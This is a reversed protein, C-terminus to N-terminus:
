FDMSATVVLTRPQALVLYNAGPYGGASAWYNRDFLNDIRARLTLEQEGISLGYRAGIDFRTWSPLSMTNAADAYQSSSYTLRANLALGPLVPLDWEGGLNLQTKPVGIAHKGTDTMKADILNLGGLLRVGPLPEGFMSLELGRHRQDDGVVFSATTGDPNLELSGVPKSIQFLAAHGGLKGFDFKVGAEVQETQYPAFVQGGNTVPLGGPTVQPAVDGRVLGEIYNGYVSLASTAKYLLAVSPTTRSASYGANEVGSNYDFSRDEIRQRRAGLTLQLRGDIFNMTDALALSSTETKQTVLPADLNGGVFFDAPPAPVAVPNYLSGAFGAFNSFAYANRSEFRFSSLAATLDHRVQGTNLKGRIGLEGTVVRDERANDFRYASTSGDPMAAPNSLVNHEEGRRAGAAAWVVSSAGLDVEARLTGFTQRENSETWPQAFNNSADPAQPIGGIPTVSPRPADLQQDQYGIDASLRVSSGHWDLGLGVVSLEQEEGEVATEGDRRALNLRVGTAKDEGFRRALDASAYGQGGSQMGLTVENLAANPARKPLLNISGGLASGGPAAGNLFASPGRFVEVRELLEAAVYQRPLLGYLGNYSMDDSYIPFGRIVYLEQFNGFGRANRVAPDNVLVDGVGRAQQNQILGQTYATGAFPTEMFDKNGLLGVRGGRAVQGGAYPKTLGAASADASAEIVVPELTATPADPTARPTADPIPAVQAVAPAAALSLQVALAILSLKLPQNLRM